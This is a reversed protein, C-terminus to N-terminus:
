CPPARKTNPMREQLSANVGVTKYRSVDRGEKGKQRRATKEQRRKKQREYKEGDATCRGFYMSVSLQRYHYRKSFSSRMYIDAGPAGEIGKTKSGRLRSACPFFCCHSMAAAAATGQQIRRIANRLTEARSRRVEYVFALATIRQPEM